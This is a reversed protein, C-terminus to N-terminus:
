KCYDRWCLVEYFSNNASIYEISGCKYFSKNLLIYEADIGEAVCLVLSLSLSRFLDSIAVTFSLKNPSSKPPLSTSSFSRRSDLSSFSDLVGIYNRMKWSLEIRDSPKNRNGIDLHGSLRNFSTGAMLSQTSFQNRGREWGCLENIMKFREM